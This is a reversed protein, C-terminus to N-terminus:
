SHRLTNCDTMDTPKHYCAPPRHGFRVVALARATIADRQANKKRRYITRSQCRCIDCNDSMMESMLLSTLGVQLRRFSSLSPASTVSAPLANWARAGAVPFAWDGWTFVPTHCSGRRRYQLSLATAPSFLRRVRAQLGGLLIWPRYWASLSVGHRLTQIDSTRASVALAVAADTTYRPRLWHHAFDFRSDLWDSNSDCRLNSELTM